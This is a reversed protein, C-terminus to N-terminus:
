EPRSVFGFRAFDADFAFAERIGRSRMIAFSLCDVYSFAQDGAKRFIGLADSHMGADTFVIDVPVEALSDIFGLAAAHGIRFRMLTVTEGLVAESTVLRASAFAREAFRVADAHHDDRRYSIAMWAGTDIFISV